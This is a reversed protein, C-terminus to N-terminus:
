QAGLSQLVTALAKAAQPSIAQIAVLVGPISALLWPGKKRLWQCLLDLRRMGDTAAHALPAFTGVAHNIALAIAENSAGIIRAAELQADCAACINPPPKTRSQRRYQPDLSM